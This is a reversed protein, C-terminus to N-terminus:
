EFEKMSLFSGHWSHYWVAGTYGHISIMGEIKGNKLTHITYYGYFADTESVTLGPLNIDLYQQAVTGAREATIPMDATPQRSGSFRGGMMAGMPSYKTNWM